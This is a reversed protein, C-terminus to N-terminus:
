DRTDDVGQAARAQRLANPLALAVDQPVENGWVDWGDRRPFLPTWPRAFIEIRPHESVAEILEYSENPKASHNRPAPWMGVTPKCRNRKMELPSRYGMLMTQTRHQWWAGTGGPKVWTIPALYRFGWANMVDFGERLHSNCTWLWLHAGDDALDGIPLACIEEISMMPYPVAKMTPWDKNGPTVIPVRWPPDALITKYKSRAGSCPAAGLPLGAEPKPQTEQPENM